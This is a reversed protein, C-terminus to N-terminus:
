PLAEYTFNRFRVTGEGAAYIAPRLSLFDYAVNHHYGSVEMQVDFKRWSKRGDDSTHITLINRDNTLRISLKSQTAGGPDGQGPIAGRPRQLGYRHMMLGSKNIGLGAYLRRNYFLLLGGEAGADIDVDITIRYAQDGAICCLPSCNSPTSGKAKLHLIGNRRDIRQAENPAPDYFAWLTGMRDTTFDDSLPMGHPQAALKAPKPLPVSLDGGLPVPWGDDAWEVPELLTQRGLTWYGNEYGHYIMWWKSGPGEFLTAHGRSWWKERASQTRILPNRPCNEWPGALSRSRAM